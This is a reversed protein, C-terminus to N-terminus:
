KVGAMMRKLVPSILFLFGGVIVSAWGIQNFVGQYTALQAAPDVVVGGVTESSTLKAVQGALSHALASSLFWVGMMLGIIRPASLKTIMSLGIPSLFLEAVSHLVYAVALWTFAVRFDADAQTEIAWV